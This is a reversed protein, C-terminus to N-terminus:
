PPGSDRANTYGWDIPGPVSDYGCDDCSWWLGGHPASLEVNVDGSECSPCHLWEHFITEREVETVRVDCARCAITLDRRDLDTVLTLEDNSCDPCSVWAPAETWHNPRLTAIDHLIPLGRSDALDVARHLVSEIDSPGERELVASVPRPSGDRDEITVPARVTLEYV